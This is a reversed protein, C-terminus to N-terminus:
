DANEQEYEELTGIYLTEYPIGYYEALRKLDRGQIMGTDKEWAVLTSPVVGIDEAAARITKNKFIRVARLLKKDEMNKDKRQM